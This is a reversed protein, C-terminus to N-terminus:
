VATATLNMTINYACQCKIQTTSKIFEGPLRRYYTDATTIAPIADVRRWTGTDSHRVMINAYTEAPVDGFVTLELDHHRNKGGSVEENSNSAIVANPDTITIIDRISVKPFDPEQHQGLERIADSQVQTVVSGTVFAALMNLAM